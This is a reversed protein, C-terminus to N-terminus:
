ADIVQCAEDKPKRGRRSPISPQHDIWDYLAQLDFLKRGQVWKWVKGEIWLGGRSHEQFFEETFGTLESALGVTVWRVAATM